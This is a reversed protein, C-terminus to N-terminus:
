RTFLSLPVAEGMMKYGRPGPHLHDGSDAADLLRDPHAPDRVTQDFDIVGDFMRSLRIWQNLTQRDKEARADPHYYSSGVYPTVTAGYVKIGHAHARTAIQTYAAELSAVLADHAAAPQDALRDLTGLDNVGEFVILFRVQPVAMVDRDLRALANPGSGDQLVRNGGIGANVVSLGTGELRRALVDPWRDNADDTAGHGDTISDGLIVVSGRPTPQLVEVGALFYWHQVTEPQPLNEDLSHEGTAVYTTARAGPHSTVVAPASEVVFTIAVDAFPPVEVPVVDSLYEAGAPIEVATQKSFDVEHQLAPSVEGGKVTKSVAAYVSRLKLSREGFANSLHL